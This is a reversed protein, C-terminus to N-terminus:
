DAQPKPSDADKSKQKRHRTYKEDITAMFLEALRTAAIELDDYQQQDNPNM